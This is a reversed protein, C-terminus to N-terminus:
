VAYPICWIPQCVGFTRPRPYHVPYPLCGTPRPADWTSEEKLHPSLFASSGCRSCVLASAKDPFMCKGRKVVLINGSVLRANDLSGGEGVCGDEPKAMVLRGMVGEAPLMPGFKAALFDFM